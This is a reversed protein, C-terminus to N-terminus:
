KNVDYEIIAGDTPSLKGIKDASYETFWLNGDPGAIIDGPIANTISFLSIPVLHRSAIL